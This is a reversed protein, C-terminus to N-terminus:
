RSPGGRDAALLSVVHMLALVANIRSYQRRSVGHVSGHRSYSRPIKDGKDPWFEGHAGWIGGLM